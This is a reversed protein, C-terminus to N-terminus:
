AAFVWEAISHHRIADRTDGSAVQYFNKNVPDLAGAYTDRVADNLPDRCSEFEEGFMGHRALGGVNGRLDPAKRDSFVEDVAPLSAPKEFDQVDQVASAVM